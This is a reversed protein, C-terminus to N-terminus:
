RDPIGLMYGVVRWLHIFAKEEELTNRLGVSKPATLVYGIFAFQTLAM